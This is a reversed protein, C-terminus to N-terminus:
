AARWQDNFDKGLESAIVRVPKKFGKLRAVAREFLAAAQPKGWDNDQAVVWSSVCPHDPVAGYGALSGACWVRLEPAANAITLADELGETIVVPSAKGAKAADEPDLLTEGRAVRIVLGLHEPWILKPKDVPAKGSGDHALYTIHCAQQKGQADVFGWIMAPFEPGLEGTERNKGMWWEFREFSRCWRAELTQPLALGRSALYRAVTDSVFPDAKAFMLHARKRRKLRQEHEAREARARAQRALEEQRERDEASMAKLRYRDMAWALAAKRDCAKLYAVLDLVDGAEGTAYDKWSGPAVGKVWVTFSGGHRDARRPNRPQWVNGRPKGELGLEQCLTLLEARMREKVIAIMDPGRYSV